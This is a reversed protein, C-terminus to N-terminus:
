LYKSALCEVGADEYHGCNHTKWGNHSCSSLKAESGTCAVDDLWITGKGDPVSSGPLARVASSFGLQRCVVMADKVDWNDDCITGWQGNYFIEVRGVGESNRPGQIRVSFHLEIPVNSFNITIHLKLQIQIKVIRNPQNSEHFM